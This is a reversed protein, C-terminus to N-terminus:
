TQTQPGCTLRAQLACFFLVNSIRHSFNCHNNAGIHTRPFLGQDEPFAAQANSMQGMMVGAWLICHKSKTCLILWISDRYRCIRPGRQPLDKRQLHWLVDKQGKKQVLSLFASTHEPPLSACCFLLCQCSGKLNTNMFPDCEGSDIQQHLLTNSLFRPVGCKIICILILCPHHQTDLLFSPCNPIYNRSGRRM